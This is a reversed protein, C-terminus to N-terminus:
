GALRRVTDFAAGLDAAALNTAIEAVAGAARMAQLTALTFTRCPDAPKDGVV